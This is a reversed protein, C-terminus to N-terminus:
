LLDDLDFDDDDNNTDKKQSSSQEKEKKDFFTTDDEETLNFPLANDELKVFYNQIDKIRKVCKEVYEEPIEAPPESLIDLKDSNVTSMDVTANKTFSFTCSYPLTRVKCTIIVSNAKNEDGFIAFLSPVEDEDDFNEKVWDEYDSMLNNLAMRSFQILQTSGLEEDKPLYSGEEANEDLVIACLLYHEHQTFVSKLNKYPYKPKYVENVREISIGSKKFTDVADCVPCNEKKCDLILWKEQNDDNDPTTPIVHQTRSKFLYNADKAILQFKIKGAKLKVIANKSSNDDLKAKSRINNLIDMPSLKKKNESM